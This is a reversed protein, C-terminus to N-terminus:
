IVCVFRKIVSYTKTWTGGYQLTPSHSTKKRPFRAEKTDEVLFKLSQLSWERLVLKWESHLWSRTSYVSNGVKQKKLPPSKLQGTQKDTANTQRNCSNPANHTDKQHCHVDVASTTLILNTNEVFGTLVLSCPFISIFFCITTNPLLYTRSSLPCCCCINDLTLNYRDCISRFLYISALWYNRMKHKGFPIGKIVVSLLLM